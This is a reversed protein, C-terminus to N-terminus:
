VIIYDCEDDNICLYMGTNNSIGMVANYKFGQYEGDAPFAENIDWLIINPDYDDDPEFYLIDEAYEGNNSIAEERWEKTLEWFTVLAVKKPKVREHKAVYSM